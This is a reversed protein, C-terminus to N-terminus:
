RGSFENWLRDFTDAYVRVLAPDETVLLNEHNRTAGRTWNYSGTILVARDAIAFKHHMHDPYPDMRVAIGSSRLRAVDSGVDLSKDDDAVIRMRVGRAHADLIAEAIRDDTITFVCIDLSERAAKLEALILYLADEGPSFAVESRPKPARTANDVIKDVQELWDIVELPEAEVKGRAIEFASNRLFALADRDHKYDAVLDRLAKSEGRSLRLDDLTRRLADKLEGHPLTM